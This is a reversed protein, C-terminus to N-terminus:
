PPIAPVEADAGTAAATMEFMLAARIAIPLPDRPHTCGARYALAADKVFSMTVPLLVHEAVVGHQGWPKWAVM